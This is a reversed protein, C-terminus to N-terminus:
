RHSLAKSINAAVNMFTTPLKSLNSPRRPVSSSLIGPGPRTMTSGSRSKGGAPDLALFDPEGLSSTGLGDAPLPPSSAPSVLPSTQMAEPINETTEFM